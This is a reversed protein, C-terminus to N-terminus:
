HMSCITKSIEKQNKASVWQEQLTGMNAKIDYIDSKPRNGIEVEKETRKIQEKEVGDLQTKLM